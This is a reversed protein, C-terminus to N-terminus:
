RTTNEDSDLLLRIEDDCGTREFMDRIRKYLRRMKGHAQFRNLGLKKGANTVSLGEQHCLKLLLRDESTLEISCDALPAMASIQDKNVSTGIVMQYLGALFLEREKGELMRPASASESKLDGDSFEVEQGQMQGCTPIAGLIQDAAPEIQDTKFQPYRDATRYIADAYAYRELCLLRYLYLWIGGLKKLWQPPRVRGYRKRAFDELRNYVVSSFYTRLSAGGRYDALKQWAEAEFRELVWLAAEEALTEDPFRRRALRNLLDWHKLSWNRFFDHQQQDKGSNLM